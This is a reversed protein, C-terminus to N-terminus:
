IRSLLGLNTVFGRGLKDTATELYSLPKMQMRAMSIFFIFFVSINSRLDVQLVFRDGHFKELQLSAGLFSSLPKNEFRSNQPRLFFICSVHFSILTRGWQVKFNCHKEKPSFKVRYLIEIFIGYSLKSVICLYM